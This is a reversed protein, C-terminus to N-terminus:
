AAEPKDKTVIGRKYDVSVTSSKGSVLDTGTATVMGNRDIVYEVQIRKTKTTERPLDRLHIEGILACADRDAQDDGQLIEIQAETQEDHELYFHDTRKCPIPTNKQIIVSNVLRKPGTGPEIVACGVGHATVDLVFADPAPIVRGHLTATRGQHSLEAACALAAGYAVAKEPDIDSHPALGTHDAIKDQVYPVRSAGGVLVLRAIDDLTVGAGSVARDVAACSQQILPRIAQHFEEQRINHVVQRGQFNVVIQVERQRALSRKAAEVREHLDLLTLRDELTPRAGCQAEVAALVLEMLRASMDNGGLKPVGETALVAMQAGSAEIVSVDFTGGGFDYILMLGKDFGKQRAYAFAAATPEPMMRLVKVGCREFAEQLAQKADDRFNAPCTAVAEDVAVNLSREGDAKLAEILIAAADTPTTAAVDLLSETGGLRLKFDQIFRSPDIFGQEVADTGVFPEGSEPIYIASRTTPEGRSNLIIAPNGSPDVYALECSTTGIDIGFISM